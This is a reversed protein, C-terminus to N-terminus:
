QSAKLVDTEAEPAEHVITELLRFRKTDTTTMAGNLIGSLAMLENVIAIKTKQKNEDSHGQPYEKGGAVAKPISLKQHLIFASHKRQNIAVLKGRISSQACIFELDKAIQM